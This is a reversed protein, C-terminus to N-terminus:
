THTLVPFKFPETPLELGRVFLESHPREAVATPWWREPTFGFEVQVIEREIVRPLVAGLDFPHQAIVDYVTLEM